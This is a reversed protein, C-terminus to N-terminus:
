FIAATLMMVLGAVSAVVRVAHFAEWRDRIQEWNHPLTAVTWGRMQKVLPMQVLVTVLLGAASLVVAIANLFFTSRQGNYTMFLVPVISLLAGPMLVSMVLFLNSNFRNVIALWVEPKFGGATGSLAVWPGFFIGAVLTSLIISILEWVKLTMRWGEAVVDAMGPGLQLCVVPLRPDRKRAQSEM